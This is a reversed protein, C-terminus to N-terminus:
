REEGTKGRGADQADRAYDRLAQRLLEARDTAGLQSVTRDLLELQQQNLRVNVTKMQGDM